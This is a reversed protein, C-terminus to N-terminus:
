AIACACLAAFVCACPLSWFRQLWYTVREDFAIPSYTNIQAHAKLGLKGSGTFKTGKQMMLYELKSMLRMLMIQM